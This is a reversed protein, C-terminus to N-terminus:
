EVIKFESYRRLDKVVVSGRLANIYMRVNVGKTPLGFNGVVEFLYKQGSDTMTGIPKGYKFVTATTESTKKYTIM